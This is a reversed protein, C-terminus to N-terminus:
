NDMRSISKSITVMKYVICRRLRRIVTKCSLVLSGNARFYQVVDRIISCLMVMHWRADRAMQLKSDILSFTLKRNRLAYYFLELGVVVKEEISVEAPGLGSYVMRSPIPPVGLTQNHLTAPWLM